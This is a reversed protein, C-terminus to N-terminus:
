QLFKELSKEAEALSKEKEDLTALAKDRAEIEPQSAREVLDYQTKIWLSEARHAASLMDSYLLRIRNASDYTAEGIVKEVDQGIFNFLTDRDTQVAGDIKRKTMFRTVTGAGVSGVLGGIGFLLSGVLAGGVSAITTMTVSKQSMKYVDSLEPSDMHVYDSKEETKRWVRSNREATSKFQRGLERNLWDFDARAKETVTNDLTIIAASLRSGLEFEYSQQYWKAPDPAISARHRMAETALNCEHALKRSFDRQTDKCREELETRLKEWAEHRSAIETKRESILRLREEDGAALMARQEQLSDHAMHLVGSVNAALWQELRQARQPNASWAALLSRLKDIGVAVGLNEYNPIEVDAPVIVPINAGLQKLQAQIFLIQRERRETPILDLHTLAVALFPIKPALLRDRIFARQTEMIGKQVDLCIVAGDTTMLARSIEMDRKKSGDNAGPTDLIDIGCARLWKNACVVTLFGVEDTERVRGEADIATLGEWSEPSLPLTRIVKGQSDAVMIRNKEGYCIRTLLATTPLGDVPVIDSDLLRNVLTSKGHSFEGVFAVSFRERMTSGALDNVQRALHPMKLSDLTECVGKVESLLEKRVEIRKKIDGAQRNAQDSKSRAATDGKFANPNIKGM